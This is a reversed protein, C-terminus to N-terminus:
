LHYLQYYIFLNYHLFLFNNLLMNFMLVNELNYFCGGSAVICM